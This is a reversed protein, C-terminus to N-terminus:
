SPKVAAALPRDAWGQGIRTKMSDKLENETAPRFIMIYNEKLEPLFPEAM